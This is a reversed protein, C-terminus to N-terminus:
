DHTLDPLDRHTPLYISVHPGDAECLQRITAMTVTDVVDTFREQIM